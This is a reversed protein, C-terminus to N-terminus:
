KLNGPMRLAWAVNSTTIYLTDGVIIPTGCVEGELEFRGICKAERGTAFVLLDGHDTGVYLHRGIITPSNFYAPGADLDRRRIEMGVDAHVAVLFGQTDNVYMIRNEVAPSGATGSLDNKRFKWRIADRREAAAVLDVAVVPWQKQGRSEFEHHLGAYLMTDVVTPPALFFDRLKERRFDRPGDRWEKFSLAGPENCDVKWLLKGEDPEFAYLRGDGAPFIVIRKGAVVASVPSAWQGYWADEGPANSSWAVTGTRKDIALFSPAQPNPKVSDSFGYGGGNGTLCFVKEGLVLPCSLPNAVDSADLKMVGLQQPMDIRWVIDVDTAGTAAEDRVPGDNGNAFGLLDVCMLEGRNSQYYVRDGDVSAKSCVGIMDNARLPLRPHEAKWLLKGDDASLCLMAGTTPRYPDNDGLLPVSAGVLVRGQHVVPAVISLRYKHKWRVHRAADDGICSWTVPEVEAANTSSTSVTVAVVAVITACIPGFSLSRRM